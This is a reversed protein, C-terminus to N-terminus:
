HRILIEPMTLMVGEQQLLQLRQLAMRIARVRQPDLHQLHPMALDVLSAQRGAVPLGASLHLGPKDDKEGALEEVLQEIFNKPKPIVRVDYDKLKAQAAIHEIADQLTGIKDVLGLELAQRGTYVRGGALEDIPKKLRNGRIAVVHGKFV